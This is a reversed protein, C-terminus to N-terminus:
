LLFVSKKSFTAGKELNIPFRIKKIKKSFGLM